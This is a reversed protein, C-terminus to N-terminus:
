QCASFAGKSDDRALFVSSQTVVCSPCTYASRVFVTQTAPDIAMARPQKLRDGASSIDWEAVVSPKDGRVDVFSLHKIDDSSVVACHGLTTVGVPDGNIAVSSKLQNSAEDVLLLQSTGSEPTAILGDASLAALHTIGNRLTSFTRTPALSNVDIKVLNDQGGFVSHAEIVWLSGGDLVMRGPGSIQPSSLENAQNGDVTALLDDGITSAFITGSGIALHELTIDSPIQYTEGSLSGGSYSLIAYSTQTPYVVTGIVLASNSGYAYIHEVPFDLSIKTLPNGNVDFIEVVHTTTNGVIPDDGVWLVGAHFLLAEHFEDKDLETVLQVQAARTLLPYVFALFLLCLLSFRKFM